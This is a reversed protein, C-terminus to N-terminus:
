KTLKDYKKDIITKATEINDAFVSGVHRLYKGFYRYVEFLEWSVQSIYLGRYEHFKSCGIIM